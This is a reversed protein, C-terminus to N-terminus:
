FNFIVVKEIAQSKELEKTIMSMREIKREGQSM